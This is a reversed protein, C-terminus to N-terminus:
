APRSPKASLTVYSGMLGALAAAATIALGPAAALLAGTWLSLPGKRLGVGIIIEASRRQLLLLSVAFLTALVM